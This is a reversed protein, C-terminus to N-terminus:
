QQPFLPYPMTNSPTGTTFLLNFDAFGFMYETTGAGLTINDYFGTDKNYVANWGLAGFTFPDAATEDIPVSRVQFHMRNEWKRQQNDSITENLDSGLFLVTGKEFGGTTAPAFGASGSGYFPNLNVKNLCPYYANKLYNHLNTGYVWTTMDITTTSVMKPIRIGTAFDQPATEWFYGGAGTENEYTEFSGSISISTPIPAPQGYWIQVVNTDYYCTYQRPCSAREALYEIDIKKCTLSPYDDNFAEGILPLAVTPEQPNASSDLYVRQAVTLNHEITMKWNKTALFVAPQSM